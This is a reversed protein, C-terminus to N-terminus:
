HISGPKRKKHPGLKALAKRKGETLEDGTIIGNDYLAELYEIYDWGELLKSEDARFEVKSQLTRAFSRAMETDINTFVAKSFGLMFIKVSSVSPGVKHHVLYISNLSFEEPKAPVPSGLGIFLLRSKTGVLLGRSSGYTAQAIDLLEEDAQLIDLLRRCIAGKNLSIPSIAKEVAALKREIHRVRAEGLESAQDPLEVYGGAAIIEVIEKAEALGMSTARRLVYIAEIKNEVGALALRKVEDPIIM